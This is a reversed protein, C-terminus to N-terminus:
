LEVGDSRELHLKLGGTYGTCFPSLYDSRFQGVAVTTRTSEARAIGAFLPGVLVGRPKVAPVARRGSYVLSMTLFSRSSRVRQAPKANASLRTKSIRVYM